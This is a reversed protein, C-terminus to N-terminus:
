MRKINPLIAANIKGWLSRPINASGMPQFLGSQVTGWAQLYPVEGRLQYVVVLPQNTLQVDPFDSPAQYCMGGSVQEDVTCSAPSAVSMPAIEKWGKGKELPYLEVMYIKGQHSVDSAFLAARVLRQQVQQHSLGKSLTDLSRLSLAESACACLVLCSGAVLLLIFRLMGDGHM